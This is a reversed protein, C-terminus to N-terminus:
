LLKTPHSNVNVTHDQTSLKMPFPRGDITILAESTSIFEITSSTDKPLIDNGAVDESLVAEGFTSNGRVSIVRKGTSQSYPNIPFEM